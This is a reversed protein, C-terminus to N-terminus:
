SANHSPWVYVQLTKLIALLLIFLITNVVLTYVHYDDANTQILVLPETIGAASQHVTPRMARVIVVIKPQPWMTSTVLKEYEINRRVRNVRVVVMKVWEIGIRLRLVDVVTLNMYKTGISRHVICSVNKAVYENCFSVRHPEVLFSYTVNPILHIHRYSITWTMVDFEVLNM